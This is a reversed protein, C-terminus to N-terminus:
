NKNKFNVGFEELIKYANELNECRIFDESLETTLKLLKESFDTTEYNPNESNKSFFSIIFLYGNLYNKLDFLYTFNILNEKIMDISFNNTIIYDNFEESIFNMEKNIEEEKNKIMDLIINIKDIKMFNENKFDIIKRIIKVFLKKTDDFLQIENNNFKKEKELEEYLRMFIISKHFRINNSKIIFDNLYDIKETENEIIIESIKM